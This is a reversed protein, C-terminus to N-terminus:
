REQWPVLSWAWDHISQSEATLAATKACRSFHRLGFNIVLDIQRPSYIVEAAGAERLADVASQLDSSAAPSSAPSRFSESDVLAVLPTAPFRIGAAVFHALADALNQRTTELLRISIPSRDTQDDLESLSRSEYVRHNVGADSERRALVTRLAGAWRGSRECVLWSLHTM